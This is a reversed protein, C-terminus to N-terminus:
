NVILALPVGLYRAGVRPTGTQVSVGPVVQVAQQILAIQPQTKVLYANIANRLQASLQSLAVSTSAFSLSGTIQSLNVGAYQLYLMGANTGRLRYFIAVRGSGNTLLVPISDPILNRRPDNATPLPKAATDKSASPPTALPHRSVSLDKSLFTGPNVTAIQSDAMRAAFEFVLMDAQGAVANVRPVETPEVKLDFGGILPSSSLQPVPIKALSGMQILEYMTKDVLSYPIFVEVDGQSALQGVDQTPRALHTYPLNPVAGSPKGQVNISWQTFAVGPIPLPVGTGTTLNAGSTSLSDLSGSVMLQAQKPLPIMQTGLGMQAFRNISENLADRLDKRVDLHSKLLENALKTAGDNVSTAGPINFFQAISAIANALELIRASDSLSIKDVQLNFKDVSDVEVISGGKKLTLDFEGSFGDVTVFFAERIGTQQKVVTPVIGDYPTKPSTTVNFTFKLTADKFRYNTDIKAKNAPASRFAAVLSDAAVPTKLSIDTIFTSWRAGFGAVTFEGNAVSLMNTSTNGFKQQTAVAPLLKETLAKTGNIRVITPDIPAQALTTSVMAAVSVVFIVLFKIIQWGKM